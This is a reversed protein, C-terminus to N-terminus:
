SSLPSTSRFLSNLSTESCSSGSITISSSESKVSEPIVSLLEFTAGSWNVVESSIPPSNPALSKNSTSCSSSSGTSSVVSSTWSVVASVTWCSAISSFIDALTETLASDKISLEGFFVKTAVVATSPCPM